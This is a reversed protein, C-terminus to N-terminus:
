VVKQEEVIKIRIELQQYYMVAFSNKLIVAYIRRLINKYEVITLKLLKVFTM